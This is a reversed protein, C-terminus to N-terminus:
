TRLSTADIKQIPKQCFFQFMARFTQPEEQEFEDWKKLDTRDKANPFRTRVRNLESQTKFIFGMFNLSLEELHDRIQLPTFRHEKVHFLLDRCEGMSYFDRWKTLHDLHTLSQDTRTRRRFERIDDIEAGLGMEAIAGRAEVIASRARESYLGVKIVGGDGLLDVLIRWGALPDAMHHLVGMVEILDFPGEVGGPLRLIDAHLFTINTIQEEEAKRMAYSLSATSLDIALIDAEPHTAALNLPHLGTGCGAVLVRPRAPWDAPLELNNPCTTKLMRALNREPQRYLTIWRPYPFAEYQQRVRASVGDDIGTLSLIDERLEAERLPELLSRRMITRFPDPWVDLPLEAIRDSGQLTIPAQYTSFCLLPGFLADPDIKESDRLYTEIDQKLNKVINTEDENQWYIYQSNFAQLAVACWLEIYAADPAVLLMCRLRVVMDELEPDVMLGARMLELYLPDQALAALSESDMEATEPQEIIARITPKLKLLSVSAGALFRHDVLPDRLLRALFDEYWPEPASFRAQQLLTVVNAIIARNAPELELANRFHILAREVNDLDTHALGLTNHLEAFNAGLGIAKECLQVTESPRNLERETIGLNVLAAPFDPKISLAKKYFTEAQELKGQDRFASGLNCLSDPYNPRIKLAKRFCAVADDIQNLARYAEGLTNHMQVSKPAGRLARRVLKVAEEPKGRGHAIAGLLHLADAHNPKRKLVQQYLREAEHIEGARHHTLATELTRAINSV